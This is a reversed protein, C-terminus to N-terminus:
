GHQRACANFSFWRNMAMKEGKASASLEPLLALIQRKHQPTFTPQIGHDRCIRPYFEEWIRGDAPLLHVADEASSQLKEWFASGDWPGYPM